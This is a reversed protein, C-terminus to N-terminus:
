PQARWLAWAFARLVAADAATANRVPDGRKTITGEAAADLSASLGSYKGKLGLPKGTSLLFTDIDTTQKIQGSEVQAAAKAYVDALNRGDQPSLSIRTLSEVKAKISVSPVPYPNAVPNGGKLVTLSNFVVIRGDSTVVIGVGVGPAFEAWYGQGQQAAAGVPILLAAALLFSRFMM